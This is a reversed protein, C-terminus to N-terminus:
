AATVLQQQSKKNDAKQPIKRGHANAATTARKHLQIYNLKVQRIDASTVEGRQQNQIKILPEESRGIANQPVHGKTIVIDRDTTRNDAPEVSPASNYQLPTEPGDKKAQSGANLDDCPLYKGKESVNTVNEITNSFQGKGEGGAPACSNFLGQHQLNTMSESAPAANTNSKQQNNIENIFSGINITNTFMM